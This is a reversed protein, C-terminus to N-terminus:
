AAGRRLTLKPVAGAELAGGRGSLSPNTMFYRHCNFPKGEAVVRSYSGDPHLWWSQETDLMNALLVQQLVQDHVTRNLIPILAEVRRDLNRGMMDASAIFVAAHASPMNHGNAFAYIRSHELFRGIISKVRVNESLGAIGPRLCCIGRVMLEVQVGANSAAYLRDIVGEDTLQNCKFWIAAPKGNQANAIEIDIRRYIEARLDIPAIHIRELSHPEVYGTVFNFMKAADRGLKPDATFFSLDTYVKATVPHYNGTGFHCYTRFSDGERRVVMAVKAHTKWDTFGYIVQVGARELKSAWKLNQEEDFRAKLEVVATVSKGAEAAEILANIVASQTGARYLTQKIAVVDPDAAAQRVFDVVVEFSEYPHHIIIDKERVASFVDGDHERVREPLRPSYADFKLDPRDERVIEALGDIGIMGDTKILAAENIGLQELLLAEAAPDFDEEIELQIVQGRRRRQIASRFTRVLDEAEEEIEIDSDRLVRFLGDGQITFGPFLAAAYRQIMRAISIYLVGGEGTVAHPVRVFRPLASPILVMEILQERTADRTLTFLLGMGENQVFPFPHAPDLAQPTIIPLIEELFFSKLWKHAAPSVRQEDAIHIDTAALGDRVERWIVQQWHSLEALKERIAALQQLPSRGDLSPADLGRQVQGVLGAVRIMMFEDLNSGSISLFRLRELLPYQDNCAEALVRQNFQLWSLERNFYPSEDVAMESMQVAGANASADDTGIPGTSM